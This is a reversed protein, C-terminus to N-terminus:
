ARGHGDHPPPVLTGDHDVLVPPAPAPTPTPTPAPTPLSPAQGFPPLHAHEPPCYRSTCPAPVPAGDHDLLAPATAGSNAIPTISTIHM